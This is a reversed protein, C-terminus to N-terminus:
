FTRLSNTLINQSEKEDHHWWKSIINLEFNIKVTTVIEKKFKKVYIFDVNNPLKLFYTYCEQAIFHQLSQITFCSLESFMSLQLSIDILVMLRLPPLTQSLSLDGEISFM